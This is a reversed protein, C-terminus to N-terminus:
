LPLEQSAYVNPSHRASTIRVYVGDPAVLRFDTKGWERAQLSHEIPYGSEIAREYAARIDNVEFCFETGSGNKPLLGGWALSDPLYARDCIHIKAAGAELVVFDALRRTVTMGITRVYFTELTSIDDTYFEVFVKM